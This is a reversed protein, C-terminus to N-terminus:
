AQSITMDDVYGNYTTGGYAWAEIEVVGAETPTFTITIEEWIDAAATMSAIVDSAVGAIQGGKCVLSMTLGTNDRRMWAKVTVLASANVAIKAIKFDLPYYSSRNTSTPSLKWAIGSATHRVTAESSILGGDTFIKHNDVTQDHKHSYVKSNKFTEFGTVETANNLACNILVNGLGNSNFVSATGNDGITANKITHLSGATAGSAFDVGYTANNKINTATIVDNNADSFIVGRALNSNINTITLISNEGIYMILGSAGNNCLNKITINNMDSGNYLYFGYDSHNNFNDAEVINNDGNNILIGRYGKVFNLRETKVFSHGITLGIGFGNQADFYTQGDQTTTSTNWGGSYTILSGLTGSEQTAQINTSNTSVMATKITERKYTTVTETTGSYGRGANAATNTENDLLITAGVISQIAFWGEDGVNKSIPSTLSLSDANASAKCAIIDDLLLTIIGPDSDAYLAVSQIAAGLAAAKDVTFAVWRGTSPIAPIYFSDVITDGVTDSCLCVKLVNGAAIAANNQVWFSVQQYTSYDTSAALAKYAVKGTAFADAIALSASNAGEKRTTSATATVNAAATWATECLDVTANLASALTITKSLDTWTATIGLSTPDLSKAVRIIDGPAIRAATAGATITKWALAWTTGDNADSGNIYDLYFIAM